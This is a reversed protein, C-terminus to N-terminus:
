TLVDKLTFYSLTLESVFVIAMSRPYLGRENESRKLCANPTAGPAMPPYKSTAQLARLLCDAFFGFHTFIFRYIEENEPKIQSLSSGLILLPHKPLHPLSAFM